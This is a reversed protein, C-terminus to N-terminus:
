FKLINSLSIYISKMRECKTVVKIEKLNSSQGSLSYDCFKKICSKISKTNKIEFFKIEFKFCLSYNTDRGYIDEYTFMKSPITNQTCNLAGTLIKDKQEKQFNIDIKGKAKVLIYIIVLLYYLRDYYYTRSLVKGQCM